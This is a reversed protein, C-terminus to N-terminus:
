KLSPLIVEGTLILTNLVSRDYFLYGTCKRGLCCNGIRGEKRRIKDRGEKWVGDERWKGEQKSFRMDPRM